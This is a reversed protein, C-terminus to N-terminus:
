YSQIRSSIHACESESHELYYLIFVYIYMYIFMKILYKKLPIKRKYQLYYLFKIYM